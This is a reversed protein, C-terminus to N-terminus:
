LNCDYQFGFISSVIGCSGSECNNCCYERGLGCTKSDGPANANGCCYGNTCKKGDDGGCLKNNEKCPGNLCTDVCYQPGIGCEKVGEFDGCCLNNPCEKDSSCLIKEACYQKQGGSRCGSECKVACPGSQCGYKTGCYRSGLGCYGDESCCYNNPCTANGNQRGCLRDAYCAGSQCGEDCYLEGIGCEGDKSCCRNEPCELQVGNSVGQRGCSAGTVTSALALVTLAAAALALVNLKAM